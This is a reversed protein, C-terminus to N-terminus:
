FPDELTQIPPIYIPDIQSLIPVPPPSSGEPEM